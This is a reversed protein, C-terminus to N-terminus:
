AVKSPMLICVMSNDSNEEPEIVAARTPDNLKLVINDSSMAMLSKLINTSKFGIVMGDGLLSCSVTESAKTGFLMDQASMLISDDTFQMKILSTAKDSCVSLRKVAKEFDSRPVVAVSEFNEPIIDMYKPFKGVILRSVVCTGNCVFRVTTGKTADSVISMVTDEGQSAVAAKLVAANRAHLIVRQPEACVVGDITKCALIHSDSAVLNLNQGVLDFCIGGLVPRLEDDGAAYDTDDISETLAETNISVDVVHAGDSKLRPYDDMPFFPLQFKGSGTEIVVSTDTTSFQLSTDRVSKLLDFMYTSPICIGGTEDVSVADIVRSVEIDGDGAIVTLKNDGAIFLLSEYIAVASKAPVARQLGALAKLLVSSNIIFKM